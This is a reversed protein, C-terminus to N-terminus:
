VTIIYNQEDNLNHHYALLNLNHHRLIETLKGHECLNTFTLYRIPIWEFVFGWREFGLFPTGKTM